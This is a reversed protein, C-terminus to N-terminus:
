RRYVGGGRVKYIHLSLPHKVDGASRPADRTPFSALFYAWPNPWTPLEHPHPWQPHHPCCPLRSAFPSYLVILVGSDSTDIDGEHNRRWKDYDWPREGRVPSHCEWVDPAFKETETWQVNHNTAHLICSHVHAQVSWSSRWVISSYADPTGSATPASLARAFLNELRDELEAM